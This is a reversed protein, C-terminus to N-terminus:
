RIIAVKWRFENGGVKAIVFYVGSNLRSQIASSPVSIFQNGYQDKVPFEGSYALMLSSTLFYVSASSSNMGSLPLM